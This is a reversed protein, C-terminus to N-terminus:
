SLQTLYSSMRTPEESDDVIEDESAEDLREGTTSDDSKLSEGLIGLKNKFDEADGSFEITKAITRFKEQEIETEFGQAISEVIKEAKLASLEKRAEMLEETQTDITAKAEELEKENDITEDSLKM